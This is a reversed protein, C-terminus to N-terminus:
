FSEEVSFYDVDTLIEQCLSLLNTTNLILMQAHIRLVVGGSFVNKVVIFDIMIMSNIFLSSMGLILM